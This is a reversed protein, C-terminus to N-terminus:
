KKILSSLLDASDEADSSDQKLTKIDSKITMHSIDVEPIFSGLEEIEPEIKRRKISEIEPNKDVFKVQQNAKILRELNKLKNDLNQSETKDPKTKQLLLMELMNEINKMRSDVDSPVEIKKSQTVNFKPRETSSTKPTNSVIEFKEIGAQKLHILVSRMDLKSIDIDAPTRITKLGPISLTHGREIIKLIIM